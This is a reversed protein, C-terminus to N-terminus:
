ARNLASTTLNRAETITIVRPAKRIFAVIQRKRLDTRADDDRPALSPSVTAASWSLTVAGSVLLDCGGAPRESASGSGAGARGCWAPPAAAAVAEVAEVAGPDCRAAEAAAVAAAEVPERRAAGAAAAAAAEALLNCANASSSTKGTSPMSRRWASTPSKRRESRSSPVRHPTGPRHIETPGTASAGGAVALSVGAAGVVPLTRGRGKRKSAQKSRAM